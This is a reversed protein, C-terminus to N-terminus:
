ATDGNLNGHQPRSLSLVNELHQEDEIINTQIHVALRWGFRADDENRLRWCCYHDGIQDLAIARAAANAHQLLAQDPYLAGQRSSPPLSGGPPQRDGHPAADANPSQTPEPM